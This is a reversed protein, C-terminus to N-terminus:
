RRRNMAIRPLCVGIAATYMGLASFCIMVSMTKIVLRDSAADEEQGYEGSPATARESSSVLPEHEAENDRDM